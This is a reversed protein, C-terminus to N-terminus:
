EGAVVFYTSGGRGLQLSNTSASRARSHMLPPPPRVTRHHRGEERTALLVLPQSMPPYKKWRKRPSLSPSPPPM